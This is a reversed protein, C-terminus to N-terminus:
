KETYEARAIEFQRLAEPTSSAMTMAVEKELV